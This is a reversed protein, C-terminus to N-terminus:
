GLIRSHNMHCLAVALADAADDPRPVQKLGLLKKTMEMVQLKEAKGYGVVALKVQQPSYSFIPIGRLAGCLLVVGRAHAVPLGTNVNANFFLEEVALADPPVLDLLQNFDNYIHLLRTELPLGAETRMVGSRIARLQGGSKEVFGFGVIAVGPDIGCVTM